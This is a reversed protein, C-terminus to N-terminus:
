VLTPLPHWNKFRKWNVREIHDFDGFSAGSHLRPTPRIAAFLDTWGQSEINWDMQKGKQTPIWLQLDVALGWNHASRGPPAALPGGALHIEYLRQQLALSRFGYVVHYEYPLGDLLTNVDELFIPELHDQSCDWTVSM